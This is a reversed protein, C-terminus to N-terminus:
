EGGFMLNAAEKSDRVIDKLKMTPFNDVLKFFLKETFAIKESTNRTNWLHVAKSPKECGQYPGESGCKSCKITWADNEPDHAEDLVDVDEVFNRCESISYIESVGGCFPCPKINM